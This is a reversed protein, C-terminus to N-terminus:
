NEIVKSYIMEKGTIKMSGNKISVAKSIRWGNKLYWKVAIELGEDFTLSQRWGLERKIKDCNIAYRRDHGPRDKVFTILRKYYDKEKGM